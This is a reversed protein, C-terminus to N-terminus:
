GARPAFHLALARAALFGGFAALLPLAGVRVAATFLAVALLIRSLTLTLAIQWRGGCVMVAATRRLAFFYLLGMILGAAAPLMILLSNGTTM